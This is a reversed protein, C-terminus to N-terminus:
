FRPVYAVEVLGKQTNMTEYVINVLSLENRTLSNHVRPHSVCRQSAYVCSLNILKHSEAKVFFSFRTFM